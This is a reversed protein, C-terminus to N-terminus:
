DNRVGAMQSIEALLERETPNRCCLALYNYIRRNFVSYDVLEAGFLLAIQLRREPDAEPHQKIINDLAAVHQNGAPYQESFTAKITERKVRFMFVIAYLTQTFRMLKSPSQVLVSTAMSFVPTSEAELRELLAVLASLELGDSLRVWRHKLESYAINAAQKAHESYGPTPPWACFLARALRSETTWRDCSERILRSFREATESTSEGCSLGLEELASRYGDLENLSAYSQRHVLHCLLGGDMIRGGPMRFHIFGGLLYDWGPIGFAMREAVPFESLGEIVTDLYRPSFHFADLGGRYADAREVAAPALSVCEQRTLALAPGCRSWFESIRASRVAPYIDGNALMVPCGEARAALRRLVPMIRPVPKGAVTSADEGADLREIASSEIGGAELAEAEEASNFSVVDFGASRWAALCAKQYPLDGGPNLSTGLIPRGRM